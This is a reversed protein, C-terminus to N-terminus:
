CIRKVIMRTKTYHTMPKGPRAYSLQYLVLKGLKTDRTRIENGAGNRQRTPQPKQLTRAFHNGFIITTSKM